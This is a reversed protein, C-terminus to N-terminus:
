IHIFEIKELANFTTGDLQTVKVGPLPFGIFNLPEITRITDVDLLISTAEMQGKKTGFFKVSKTMQKEKTQQAADNRFLGNDWGHFAVDRGQRITSTELIRLLPLIIEFSTVSRSGQKSDSLPVSVVM